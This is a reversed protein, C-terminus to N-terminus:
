AGVQGDAVVPGSSWTSAPKPIFRPRPGPPRLYQIRPYRLGNKDPGPTPSRSSQGSACVRASSPKCTRMHAHSRRSTRAAAAAGTVRSCPTGLGENTM